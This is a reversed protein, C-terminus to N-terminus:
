NDKSMNCRGKLTQVTRCIKQSHSEVTEIVAKAEFVEKLDQAYLVKQMEKGSSCFKQGM